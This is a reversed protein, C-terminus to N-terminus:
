ITHNLTYISHREYLIGISDLDLDLAATNLAHNLKM